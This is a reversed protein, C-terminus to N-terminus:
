SWSRCLCCTSSILARWSRSRWCSASLQRVPRAFAWAAMAAMWSSVPRSKGAHFSGAHFAHVAGTSTGLPTRKPSNRTLRPPRSFPTGACFNEAIFLESFGTLADSEGVKSLGAGSENAKRVPTAAELSLRAQLLGAWVQAQTERYQGTTPLTVRADMNAYLAAYYTQSRFEFEDTFWGVNILLPLTGGDVAQFFQTQGGNFLLEAGSQNQLSGIGLVNAPPPVDLIDGPTCAVTVLAISALVHHRRM